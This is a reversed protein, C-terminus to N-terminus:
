SGEETLGLDPLIAKLAEFGSVEVRVRATRFVAITAELVDDELNCRDYVIAVVGAQVLMAACHSCPLHTCHVTTGDLSVGYKTAQAVLNEEAHLLYAHKGDELRVCGGNQDCHPMRGPVGNYGTMLIRGEISAVAGVAQKPCTSRSAVVRAVAILYDDISPRVSASGAM